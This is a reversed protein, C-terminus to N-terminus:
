RISHFVGFVAALLGLPLLLSLGCLRRALQIRGKVTFVISLVALLPIGILSAILFASGMVEWYWPVLDFKPSDQFAFSMGAVFFMALAVGHLTFYWFNSMM